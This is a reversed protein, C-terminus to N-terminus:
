LRFVLVAQEMQGAQSKLAETAAAAEEVLAANQQTVQDMTGIAQSLEGIGASQQATATSIEHAIRSVEQIRQVMTQMAQGAQAARQSGAEAQRVSEAILGKIDRAAVASRQALARVEQAVVSFGRGQEGARAAEVAANLALLNTQFALGDIVGTIDAIRRSAGDIDGMTTVVEGVLRGGDVAFEATEAALESAHRASDANQRVATSWQEVSAATQQLASAQEETRSSLDQNGDAIQSSTLSVTQAQERVGAVLETLRRQMAALAAMLSAEDGARVPVVTTLDGAAVSQALAVARAPEGGLPRLVLRELLWALGAMVVVLSALALVLAVHRLRVVPALLEDDPVTVALSWPTRTDGVRLPAYIRTMAQGTAPDTWRVTLPQGAQIAAKAGAQMGGAEVDQGLLERHPDGIIEGAHSVLTAYGSGYLRIAAVAAQVDAVAIDLGAVGVVQGAVRIPVSVSTVRVKTGGIEYDYPDFFMEEGTRVAELYFDGAGPEDYGKTPELHFTGGSRYWYPVFRGSRDHGPTNAFEADRGDFANPEWTTSLGLLTPNGELVARLQANAIDRDPKRAARLGGLSQATARLTQLAQNFPRGLRDAEARALQEAYMLATDRQAQSAQQTLLAVTALFGAGVLAFTALLVQLRLSLRRPHM